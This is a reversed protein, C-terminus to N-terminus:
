ADAPAIHAIVHELASLFSLASSRPTMLTVEQASIKIAIVSMHHATSRAAFGAPASRIDLAIFRELVDYIRPGSITLCAWGDSQLTTYATGSLAKALAVDANIDEGSIIALYQDAGSWLVRGKATSIFGNPKPALAGFVKKFAAEFAEEEGLAVAISVLEGAYAERLSLGNWDQSYGKLPLTPSLKFM